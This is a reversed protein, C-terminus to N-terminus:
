ISIAYPKIQFFKPLKFMSGFVNFPINMGNHAKLYIADHSTMGMGNPCNPFKSISASLMLKIKNSPKFYNDSEDYNTAISMGHTLLLFGNQNIKQIGGEHLQPADFNYQVNVFVADKNNELYLTALDMDTFLTSDDMQSLYKLLEELKQESTITTKTIETSSVSSDAGINGELDLLGLFSGLAKGLGVRGSMHAKKDKGRSITKEVELRHVTQAFLSDLGAVDLYLYRKPAIRNTM